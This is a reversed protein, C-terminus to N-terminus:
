FLDDAPADYTRFFEALDAARDTREWAVDLDNRGFHGYAATQAYQPRDLELAEIIAAPRLDFLQRVANELAPDSVRGTGYTNVRLSVPNAVGIAYAVQVEVRRALGAAVINKAVHRAAYCASRDVKTPDKGSFAGGGHAAAGGYTDVIIKRGTLGSDGVPGGIVFRGTPNILVRTRDTLLNESIVPRIVLERMDHALQEESVSEDHQTSLVVTDVEVPIGDEYRVSVQTKGDPRLYPLTGDERVRTLRRALRHALSIPTPMLEPTEDVAYGFMIGQDGAGIDDGAEERVELASNVGQAIDPSQRDILNVFTFGNAWFGLEEDTYGIGRVAERAVAEVDVTADASVEGSAVFTNNKVLCDIAVHARPDQALYADLISDSVIDCIKDPHGKTVSESSFIYSDLAQRKKKVASILHVNEFASLEQNVSDFFREQVNQPTLHVAIHLGHRLLLRRVEEFDYGGTMEEGLHATLRELRRPRSDRPADDAVPAPFDFVIRSGDSLVSVLSAITRDFVPLRLYYTVGMISVFTPREVRFGAGVLETPLDDENFDVPVFTLNEPIDWGLEAIRQRKFEQTLPHDIEFVHIRENVNRFAFSDMGAGCIVYQVQENQRAFAALEEECFRARSLPIPMILDALVAELADDAGSEAEACAPCSLVERILRETEDQGSLGLLSFALSDDFVAGREFRSHYARALSCLLATKSETNEM